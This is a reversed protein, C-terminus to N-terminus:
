LLSGHVVFTHVVQACGFMHTLAMCITTCVKTTCFYKGYGIPHTIEVDIRCWSANPTLGM